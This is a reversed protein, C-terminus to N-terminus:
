RVGKKYLVDGLAAILNITYEIEDDEGDPASNDDPNLSISDREMLRDFWSHAKQVIAWEEKTLTRQKESTNEAKCEPCEEFPTRSVVKHKACYRM